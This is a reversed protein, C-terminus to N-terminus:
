RFREGMFVHWKPPYTTALDRLDLYGGSGFDRRYDISSVPPELDETLSWINLDIGM